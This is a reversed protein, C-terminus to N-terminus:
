MVARSYSIVCLLKYYETNMLEHMIIKNLVYVLKMAFIIDFAKIKMIEIILEVEACINVSINFVRFSTFLISFLLTEKNQLNKNKNHQQFAEIIFKLANQTKRKDTSNGCKKITGHTKHPSPLM